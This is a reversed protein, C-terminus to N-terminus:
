QTVILNNFIDSLMGSFWHYVPILLVNVGNNERDLHIVGGGWPVPVVNVLRLVVSHDQVTCFM